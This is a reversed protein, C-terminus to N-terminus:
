IYKVTFLVNILLSSHRTSCKNNITAIDRDRSKRRSTLLKIATWAQM